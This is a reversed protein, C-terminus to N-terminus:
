GNVPQGGAGLIVLFPFILPIEGREDSPWEDGNAEIGIGEITGDRDYGKGRVREPMWDIEVISTVM